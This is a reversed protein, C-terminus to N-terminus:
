YFKYESPLLSRRTVKLKGKVFKFILDRDDWSRILKKMLLDDQLLQLFQTQGEQNDLRNIRDSVGDFTPCGASREQLFHEMVQNPITGQPEPTEISEADRFTRDAQLLEKTLNSFDIYCYSHNFLYFSSILTEREWMKKLRGVVEARKPSLMITSQLCLFDMLPDNWWQAFTKQVEGVQKSIENTPEM